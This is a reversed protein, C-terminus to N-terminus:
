LEADYERGFLVNARMTDNMIWPSQELYATSGAVKGTGETMELEGCISLLLSSKGSGSKGTVAILEEPAAGLSVRKLVPVRSQENWTFSVSSLIEEVCPFKDNNTYNRQRLKPDLYMREWGFLKIAKIGHYVESVNSDLADTNSKWQSSDGVLQEFGWRALLIVASSVMPIAALWGVIFYLAGFKASFGVITAITSAATSMCNELIKMRRSNVSIHGFGRQDNRILPLRFLELQIACTARKVEVEVHHSIHIQQSSSLSAVLLGLAACYGYYWPYDSSADFCSLLYGSAMVEFIDALEALMELALLPIMPRWILRLIARLLFMPEDVNYVFERQITSIRFREPLQWVDSLALPRLRGLRILLIAQVYLAKEGLVRLTTLSQEELNALILAAYM